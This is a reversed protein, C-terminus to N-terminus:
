VCLFILSLLDFWADDDHAEM